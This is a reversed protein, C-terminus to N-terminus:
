AKSGSKPTPPAGGGSGPYGGTGTGGGGTGSGGAATELATVRLELGDVREELRSLRTLQDPIQELLTESAAARATKELLTPDLAAVWNIGNTLAVADTNVVTFAAAALRPDAGAARSAAQIDASPKADSPNERATDIASLIKRLQTADVLAPNIVQGPSDKALKTKDLCTGPDKLAVAAAVARVVVQKSSGTAFSLAPASVATGGPAAVGLPITISM